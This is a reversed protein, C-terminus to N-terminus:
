FCIGFFYKRNLFCNWRKEGQNGPTPVKIMGTMEVHGHCNILRLSTILPARNYQLRLLAISLRAYELMM